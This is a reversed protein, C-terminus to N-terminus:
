EVDKRKGRNYLWFYYLSRSKVWRCGRNLLPPGTHGGPRGTRDIRGRNHHKKSPNYADRSEWWGRTFSGSKGTRDVGRCSRKSTASVIWRNPKLKIWWTPVFLHFFTLLGARVRRLQWVMVQLNGSEKISHRTKAKNLLMTAPRIM